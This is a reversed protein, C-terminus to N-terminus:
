QQDATRTRLGTKALRTWVTGIQRTEVVYLQPDGDIVRGDSIFVHQRTVWQGANEAAVGDMMENISPGPMGGLSTTSVRTRDRTGVLLALDSVPASVSPFTAYRVLFASRRPEFALVEIVRNGLRLAAGPRLPIAAALHHQKLRVEGDGEISATRDRLHDLDALDIDFGWRASGDFREAQAPPRELAPAVVGVLGPSFCCQWADGPEMTRDGSRLRIRRLFISASMDAPLPPLSVTVGLRLPFPVPSKQRADIDSQPPLILGDAVDLHGAILRQLPEPAPGRRASSPVAWVAILMAVAAMASISVRRHRYHAVVIALAAGTTLLAAWWGHAQLGQWDLLFTPSGMGIRIGGFGRGAKASWLAWWYLLSGMTLFGGILLAAAAGMFIALTRTVLALAWAPVIAFGTLVAIQLTAAAIASSPAGYALLRGATILSPLVVFLLTLTTGKALAMAIPSIPRTRWFARDDVPLDAQVIGVTTRVLILLMVANIVAIEAMGIVGGFREDIVAPALHLSWEVFAARVVQSAVVLGVLLRFRHLDFRVLHLVSPAISRPPATAVMANM